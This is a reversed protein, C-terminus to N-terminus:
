QNMTGTLPAKEFDVFDTKAGFAVDFSIKGKQTLFFNSFITDKLYTNTAFLDSQQAISRYGDAEGSMKVQVGKGDDFVVDMKTFKVQKLTSTELFDFLPSVVTHNKVVLSGNKLQKDLTQLKTVSDPEFTKEVKKISEALTVVNKEQYGKWFYVGGACLLTIFFLVLSISSLFGIPRSAPKSGVPSVEALPKKPIFTTTFQGQEM